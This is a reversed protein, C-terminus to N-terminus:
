HIKLSLIQGEYYTYDTMLKGNSHYQYRKGHLVGNEYCGEDMVNGNEYCEIYGGNRLGNIYHYKEKVKENFYWKKCYKYNSNDFESYERLKDNEYWSTYSGNLKDNEYTCRVAAKGNVYNCMYKGHRLNDKYNIEEIINGLKDYSYEVDQRLGKEDYKKVNMIEGTFFYMINDGIIMGNNYTKRERTINYVSFSEYYEECVGHLVNNKYNRISQLKIKGNFTGPFYHLVKGELIGNNYEKTCEIDGNEYYTTLTGHYNYFRLIGKDKVNGNKHYTTYQRYIYQEIMISINPDLLPYNLLVENLIAQEESNYNILKM